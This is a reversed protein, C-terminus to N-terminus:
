VRVYITYNTGVFISALYTISEFSQHQHSLSPFLANEPYVQLLYDMM